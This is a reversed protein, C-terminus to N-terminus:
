QSGSSSLVVSADHLIAVVYYKPLHFLTVWTLM